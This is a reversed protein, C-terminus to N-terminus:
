SDGAYKPSLESRHEAFSALVPRFISELRHKVVALVTICNGVLNSLIGQIHAFSSYLVSTLAGSGWTLYAV